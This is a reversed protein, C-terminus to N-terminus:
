NNQNNQNLKKFAHWLIEEHKELYHKDAEIITVDYGFLKWMLLIGNINQVPQDKIIEYSLKFSIIHEEGKKKYEQLCVHMDEVTSLDLVGEYIDKPLKWYLYGYSIPTNISRKNRYDFHFVNDYKSSWPATDIKCRRFKFQIFLCEPANFINLGTYVQQKYHFPVSFIDRKAPCKIELLQIDTKESNLLLGDPSYSVPYMPHPISGFNYIAGYKQTVFIKAVPEFLKGWLTNESQSNIKQQKRILLSELNEYKSLGLVIAIESGGFAFKRSELFEDTDPELIPINFKTQYYRIKWM